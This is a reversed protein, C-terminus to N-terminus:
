DLFFEGDDLCTMMEKKLINECTVYGGRYRLATPIKLNKHGTLIVTFKMSAATGDEVARALMASSYAKRDSGIVMIGDPFTALRKGTSDEMTMYENFFTLTYDADECCITFQGHDLANETICVYDKLSGTGAVHGGLMQAAERNGGTALMKRGLVTYKYFIWLAVLFLAAM